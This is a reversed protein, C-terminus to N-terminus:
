GYRQSGALYFIGSGKLEEIWFPCLGLVDIRAVILVLIAPSLLLRRPFLLVACQQPRHFCIQFLARVNWSHFLVLLCGVVRANCRRRPLCLLGVCSDGARM